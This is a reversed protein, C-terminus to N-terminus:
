MSYNNLTKFCPVRCKWKMAWFIFKCLGRARRLSMDFYEKIALCIQAIFYREFNLKNLKLGASVLANFVFFPLTSIFFLFENDQHANYQPESRVYRTKKRKAKKKKQGKQDDNSQKVYQILMEDVTNTYALLSIHELKLTKTM